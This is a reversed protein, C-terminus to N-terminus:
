RLGGKEMGKLVNEIHKIRPKFELPLNPEFFKILTKIEEKIGRRNALMLLHTVNVRENRLVESFIRGVEEESFPIRARTSEFYLDVLARETCAIGNRNGLLSSFERIVFIETEPFNELAMSIERRKPNFLARLGAKRLLDVSFEGAGKTVYILHIMRRPFHHFRYLASGGTIMFEVGKEELLKRARNLSAPIVEVKVEDSLKITEKIEIVKPIRYMGRGLKEVMGKKCLDHFIRYVTGKSYHKEDKLVKLADTTDFIRSGFKSRLIELATNEWKM